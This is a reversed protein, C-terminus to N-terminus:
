AWDAHENVFFTLLTKMRKVLGIIMEDELSSQEIQADLQRHYLLDPM